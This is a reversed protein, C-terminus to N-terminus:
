DITEMEAVAAAELDVAPAEKFIKEKKARPAKPAAPAKEAKPARAKLEGGLTVGDISLYGSRLDWLLDGKTGGAATYDAVTSTGFYKAFRDFTARGAARPNTLINWTIKSEPKYDGVVALKKNHVFAKEATATPAFAQEASPTVVPATDVPVAAGSIKDKKAM